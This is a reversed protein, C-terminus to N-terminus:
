REHREEYTFPGGWDLGADVLSLLRLRAAERQELTPEPRCPLIEAIREGNQTLTLTRGAALERLLLEVHEGIQELAFAQM